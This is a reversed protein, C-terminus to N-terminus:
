PKVEPGGPPNAPPDDKKKFVSLATSGMSAVKSGFATAIAPIAGLFKMCGEPFIIALVIVLFVLMLVSGSTATLSDKFLYAGGGMMLM